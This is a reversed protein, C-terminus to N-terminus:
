EREGGSQFQITPTDHRAKRQMVVRYKPFATTIQMVNDQVCIETNAGATNM